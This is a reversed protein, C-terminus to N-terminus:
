FSVHPVPALTSGRIAPLYTGKNALLVHRNWNTALGPWTLYGLHTFILRMQKIFFMKIYKFFKTFM